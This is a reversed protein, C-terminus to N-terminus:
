QTVAPPACTRPRRQDQEGILVPGAPVTRQDGLALGDDALAQAAVLGAWVLDLRGDVGNM